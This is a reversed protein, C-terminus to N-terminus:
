RVQLRFEVGSLVICIEAQTFLLFNRSISLLFFMRSPPSVSVLLMCFLGTCSNEALNKPTKKTRTYENLFCHPIALFSLTSPDCSCACCNRWEGRRFACQLGARCSFRRSASIPIHIRRERRNVKVCGAYSWCVFHQCRCSRDVPGYM